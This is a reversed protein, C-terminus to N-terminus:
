IAKRFQLSCLGCGGLLLSLINFFFYHNIKQIITFCIMEVIMSLIMCRLPTRAHLGGSRRRILLLSVFYFIIQVPTAWIRGEFFLVVFISTTLIWKKLIYICWETDEEKILDIELLFFAIKQTTRQLM